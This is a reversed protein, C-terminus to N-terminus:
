VHASAHCGDRRSRWASSGVSPEGPSEERLLTLSVGLFMSGWHHNQMNSSGTRLLLGTTSFSVQAPLVQCCFRPTLMCLVKVM